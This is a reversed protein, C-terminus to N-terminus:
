NMKSTFWSGGQISLGLKRTNPIWMQSWFWLLVVMRHIAGAVGAGCCDVVTVYLSPCWLPLPLGSALLTSKLWFPPSLSREFWLFDSIMWGGSDLLFDEPPFEAVLSVDLMHKNKNTQIKLVTKDLKITSITYCFYMCQLHKIM